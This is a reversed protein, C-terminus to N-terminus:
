HLSLFVGATVRRYNQNVRTRGCVVRHFERPFFYLVVFVRPSHFIEFKDAPAGELCQGKRERETKRILRLAFRVAFESILFFLAKPIPTRFIIKDHYFPPRASYSYIMLNNPAPKWPCRHLCVNRFIHPKRNANVFIELRCTFIYKM